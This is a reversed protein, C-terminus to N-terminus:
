IFIIGPEQRQGPIISPGFDSSKAEFGAITKKIHRNPWFSVQYVSYIM